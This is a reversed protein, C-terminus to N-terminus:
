PQMEFRVAGDDPAHKLDALPGLAGAGLVLTLVVTAVTVLACFGAVVRWAAKLAPAELVARWVSLSGTVMMLISVGSLIPTAIVIPFYLLSAFFGACGLIARTGGAFLRAKDYSDASSPRSRFGPRPRPALADDEAAGATAGATADDTADPGPAPPPPENMAKLQPM